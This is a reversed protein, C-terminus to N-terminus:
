KLGFERLNNEDIFARYWETRPEGGGERELLAEADEPLILEGPYLNPGPNIERGERVHLAIAQV